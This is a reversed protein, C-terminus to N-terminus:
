EIVHDYVEAYRYLKMDGADLATQEVEYRKKTKFFPCAKDNIAYALVKCLGGKNGFCTRRECRVNAQNVNM